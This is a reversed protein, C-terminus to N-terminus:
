FFVVYLILATSVVALCGSFIRLKVNRYVLDDIVDCTYEVNEALGHIVKVAQVPRNLVTESTWSRGTTVGQRLNFTYRSTKKM